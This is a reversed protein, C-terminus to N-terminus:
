NKEGVTFGVAPSKLTKGDPLFARVWIFYKGGEALRVDAPLRTHAVESRGEWVPSGDATVLHVEYFLSREVEQWRLESEESTIVSGEQPFLLDPLVARRPKNRVTPVPVPTLPADSRAPPKTEVRPPGATPPPPIVVRPARLWLGAVLALSAAFGGALAWRLMPKAQPQDPSGALRCAQALLAEPVDARVGREQAHALFSVQDLCFDCDALHEAVRQAATEDLGGDVYAAIEGDGPCRWTRQPSSGKSRALARVLHREDM